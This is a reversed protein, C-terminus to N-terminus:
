NLDITSGVVKVTSDGTIEVSGGKLTLKGTTALSVDGDQAMTLKAEGVSFEVKGDSAGAQTIAIKADGVEVRVAGDAITLAVRVDGDLVVSLERGGAEPTKIRWEIRKDAAADVPLVGACEGATHIPPELQRHYLRGIVVPAHLDGGVLLVLVLEGIRPLGAFGTYPVAIPVKPLVIGSERLAVTCSYEGADAHVSSVVGYLAGAGPRSAHRDIDRLLSLSDPM